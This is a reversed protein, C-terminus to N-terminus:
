SLERIGNAYRQWKRLMISNDKFITLLMRNYGPEKDIIYSQNSLWYSLGKPLKYGGEVLALMTFPGNPLLYHEMINDSLPMGTVTLAFSLPSFKELILRIEEDTYVKGAAIAEKIRERIEDSSIGFVESM